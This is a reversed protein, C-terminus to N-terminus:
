QPCAVIFLFLIVTCRSSLASNQGHDSYFSKFVDEQCLSCLAHSEM